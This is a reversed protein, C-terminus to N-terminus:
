LLAREGWLRGRKWKLSFFFIFDHLSFLAGRSGPLCHPLNSHCPQTGM